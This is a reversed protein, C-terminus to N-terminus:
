NSQLDFIKLKIGWTKLKIGWVDFDKAGQVAGTLLPLPSVQNVGIIIACKNM